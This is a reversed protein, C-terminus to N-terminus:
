FWRGELHAVSYKSCMKERYKENSSCTKVIKEALKMWKTTKKSIKVGNQIFQTIKAFNLM